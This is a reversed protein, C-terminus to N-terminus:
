SGAAGVVDDVYDDVSSLVDIMDAKGEAASVDRAFRLLVSRVAERDVGGGGSKRAKGSTRRKRGGDRKQAMKRKVQLPYRAHFQRLSLDDVAPDIKKAKAYLAKNEIDPDRELEDRVMSMIEDKREAM